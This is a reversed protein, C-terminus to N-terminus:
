PQLTGEVGRNIRDRTRENLFDVAKILHEKASENQPCAFQGSQFCSLRDIVIALLIEETVGNPFSSKLSGRQFNVKKTNEEYLGKEDMFCVLYDHSAGGDSPRDTAFCKVPKSEEDVRSIEIERCYNNM